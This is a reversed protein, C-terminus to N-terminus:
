ESPEEEKTPGTKLHDRIASRIIESRSPYFKRRVLENLGDLFEEPVYLTVTKM